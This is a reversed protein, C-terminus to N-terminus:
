FLFGDEGLAMGPVRLLCHLPDGTLPEIGSCLARWGLRELYWEHAERFAKGLYDGGAWM